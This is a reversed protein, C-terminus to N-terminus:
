GAEGDGRCLEAAQDGCHHLSLVKLQPSRAPCIAKVAATGIAVAASAVVPTTDASPVAAPADPVSIPAACFVTTGGAHPFVVCFITASVVVAVFGM